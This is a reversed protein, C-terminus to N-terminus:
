QLLRARNTFCNSVTPSAKLVHLIMKCDYRFIDVFNKITKRAHANKIAAFIGNLFIRLPRFLCCVRITKGGIVQLGHVSVKTTSIAEELHEVFRLKWKLDLYGIGRKLDMCFGLMIKVHFSAADSVLKKYSVKIGLFRMLGLLSTLLFEHEGELCFAMFDSVFGDM